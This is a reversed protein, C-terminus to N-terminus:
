LCPQKNLGLCGQAKACAAGRGLLGELGEDSARSPSRGEEGERVGQASCVCVCVCVRLEVM